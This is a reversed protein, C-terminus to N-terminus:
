FAHTYNLSVIHNRYVHGGARSESADYGLSVASSPSLSRGVSLNIGRLHGEDKYPFWDGGFIGDKWQPPKGAFEPFSERCWSLQTGEAYRLSGALRWEPTIDWIAASTISAATGSYVYREADLHKLDGTLSATLQPSFRKQLTLEAHYGWGSWESVDAIQHFGEFRFDLKTAYPGLGFKRRLGLEANLHSMNLGSYDSWYETDASFALSGQWDRDLIRVRSIVVSATVATDQKQERISNSVNNNDVYGIDITPSWTQASSTLVGATLVAALGLRSLISSTLRSRARM